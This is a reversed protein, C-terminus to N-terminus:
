SSSVDNPVQIKLDGMGVAHFVKNNAATIPRAPIERYNAFQKCFPSMHHSAGLDYLKCQVELPEEAAMVPVCPIAGDEESEDIAAWAEIEPTQEEM